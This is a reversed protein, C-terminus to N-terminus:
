KSSSPQCSSFIVTRNQITPTRAPSSPTVRKRAEILARPQHRHRGVSRVRGRRGDRRRGRRGDIGVRQGELPDAPPDQAPQRHGHQPEGSAPDGQGPEEDVGARHDGDVVGTRGVVKASGRRPEVTPADPEQGSRLDVRGLRDPARREHGGRRRDVRVVRRGLGPEPRDEGVEDGPPPGAVPGDGGQERLGVQDEAQAGCRRDPDGARLALRRRRGQGVREERGVRRVPGEQAPVDALREDLPQGVQAGPVPDDDLQGLELQRSKRPPRRDGQEGVDRRVVEVPVPGELRVPRDLAAECLLHVREAREDEIGLVRDDRAVGAQAARARDEVPVVSRHAAPDADDVAPDHGGLDLPEPDGAAPDGRRTGTSPDHRDSVERDRSPVVDRVRHGRDRDGEHEPDRGVRDPGRGRGELAHLVPELGHRDDVPDAEDVVRLPGLRIRHDRGQAGEGARDDEDGTAAVLPDVHRRETRDHGLPGGGGDEDALTARAELM